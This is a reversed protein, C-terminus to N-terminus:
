YIKTRDEISLRMAFGRVLLFASLILLIGVIMGGLFVYVYGSAFGVGLGCAFLVVVGIAGLRISTRTKRRSAEREAREREAATM